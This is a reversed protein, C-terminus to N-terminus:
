GQGSMLALALAIEGQFARFRRYETRLDEFWPTVEDQLGVAPALELCCVVLRATHRYAQRRKMGLIGEVRGTAAAKMATLMARQREVDLGIAPRANTILAVISPAEHQPEEDDIWTSYYRGQVRDDLEAFLLTSLDAPNSGALLGAFAPFLIHGPHKFASWGLGPAEALLEAASQLEGSLLKLLGVQRIEGAPCAPLVEEARQRVEPAPPDGEGLWRVLRELSPSGYWADKLRRTFDDRGLERAALAVGDLFTGRWISSTTLRAADDYARFVQEWDGTEVVARCWSLLMEPQKTKRAIRELGSIGEFRRVAERLWSASSRDWECDNGTETELLSVWRPLFDELDPLPAAAATEMQELPDHVWTIPEVVNIAVRLAAPRDEEPTTLYVSALYQASCERLDTTIVEDLMEHHGLDIECDAIPPLLSDFIACALEPDGALFANRAQRLFIDVEEPDARGTCRAATVFEGVEDLVTTPPGTPKWGASGRAAHAILTGELEVLPEYELRDRMARLLARLEEVTMADIARDVESVDYPPPDHEPQKRYFM